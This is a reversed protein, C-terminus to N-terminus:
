FVLSNFPIFFKCVAYLFFLHFLISPLIKLKKQGFAYPFVLVLPIIMLSLSQVKTYTLVDLLFIGFFFITLLFLLRFLKKLRISSVQAKYLLLKAGMLFLFIASFIVVWMDISYIENSSSNLNLIGINIHFFYSSLFCYLFPTIIGVVTLMSERFVFPRNVWIMFFLFPAGLLLIPFFTCAIGFFIAANFVTKRGDEKQDLRFLQMLMLIVFLQAVALGDLFYFSHFYSFFTIYLLSPLFTNKETFGNKNFLNTILITALLDFAFAMISFISNSEVEFRGWLGFSFYREPVHYGFQINLLFIGIIIIPAIILAFSNDSHFIKLM